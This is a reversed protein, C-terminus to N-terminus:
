KTQRNILDIGKRNRDVKEAIPSWLFRAMIPYHDSRNFSFRKFDIANMEGRYVIHDIHFYFRSGHYTITPWTGAQTFANMFDDKSLVRLAACGPIDNFDGAVIVNEIGISDIQRRLVRAQQVRALFASSLKDYLKTKAERLTKRNGDGSTIERYLEKDSANLGISQMHVSVLLTRHGQIEAIAANFMGPLNDPQWLKVPYLPFKSLIWNGYQPIRYPYQTCLSDYSPRTFVRYEWGPDIYMEQAYVIDADQEMIWRLTPNAENRNKEEVLYENGFDGNNSNYDCLGFVNFSLLTFTRAEEAPTLTPRHFNMPFNAFIPSLCFVLTLGQLIAKRRSVFLNFLLVAVTLIVWLPFTMALMSPFASKAPEVMGGYGAAITVLALLSCAIWGIISFTKHIQQRNM